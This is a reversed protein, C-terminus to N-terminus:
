RRVDADADATQAAATRVRRASSCRRQRQWRKGDTSKARLVRWTDGATWGANVDPNNIKENVAMYWVGNVYV